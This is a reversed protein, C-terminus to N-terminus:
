RPPPRRWVYLDSEGETSEGNMSGWFTGIVIRDGNDRQYARSVGDISEDGIVEVAQVEGTDDGIVAVFGDPLADTTTREGAAGFTVTGSFDGVALLGSPTVELRGGDEEAGGIRQRWLVAREPTRTPDLKALYLDAATPDPVPNGTDFMPSAVMRGGLRLLGQDDIFAVAERGPGLEAGWTVVGNEGLVVVLGSQQDSFFSQGPTVDITGGYEGVVVIDGDSNAHIDIGAVKGTAGYAFLGECTLDPALRAVFAVPPEGCLSSIPECGEMDLEGCMSGTLYIVGDDRRFLGRAIQLGADGFARVRGPRPLGADADMEVVFVSADGATNVDDINDAGFDLGGATPVAGTVLLTDDAGFALQLVFAGADRGADSMGLERAWVVEGDPAYLVLFAGLHGAPPDIVEVGDPLTLAGSTTGAIAVRGGPSVATALIEEVQDGGIRAFWELPPEEGGAGGGGDGGNGDGGGGDGGSGTSTIGAAGGQSSSTGGGLGTATTSAVASGSSGSSAGPDGGPAAPDDPIGLVDRCGLLALVFVTGGAGAPVTRPRAAV